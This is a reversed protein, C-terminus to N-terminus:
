FYGTCSYAFYGDLQSGGIGTITDGDSGLPFEKKMRPRDIQLNANGKCDRTPAAM